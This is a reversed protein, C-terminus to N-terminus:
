RNRPFTRLRGPFTASQEALTIAVDCLAVADPEQVGALDNSTRIEVADVVLDILVFQEAARHRFRDPASAGGTTEM